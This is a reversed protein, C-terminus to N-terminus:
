FMVYLDSRLVRDQRIEALGKLALCLFYVVAFPLPMRRAGRRMGSLGAVPSM